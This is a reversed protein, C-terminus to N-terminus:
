KEHFRRTESSQLKTLLDRLEGQSSEVSERLERASMRLVGSRM